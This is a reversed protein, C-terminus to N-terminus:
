MLGPYTDFNLNTRQLDPRIFAFKIVKNNKFPRSSCIIIKVNGSHAARFNYPVEKTDIKEFYEDLSLIMCVKFIPPEIKFSFDLNPLFFVFDGINLDGYKFEFFEAEERTGFLKNLAKYSVVREVM